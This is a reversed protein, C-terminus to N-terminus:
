YITNLTNNSMNLSLGTHREPTPLELTDTVRFSLIRNDQDITCTYLESAAHERNRERLLYLIDMSPNTAIGEIGYKDDGLSLQIDISAQYITDRSIDYVLIAASKENEDSIILFDEYYTVAELDTDSFSWGNIDDLFITKLHTLENKNFLHIQKCKESLLYLTDDCGTIGSIEVAQVFLDPLEHFSISQAKILNVTVCLMFIAIYAKM